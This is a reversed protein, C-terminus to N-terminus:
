HGQRDAYDPAYFTDAYNQRIQDWVLVKLAIHHDQVLLFVLEFGQCQQFYGEAQEVLFGLWLVHFATYGMRHSEM